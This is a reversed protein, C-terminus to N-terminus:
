SNGQELLYKEIGRSSFRLRGPSLRVTFPHKKSDRYLFDKSTGLREAAEAADLLRDEGEAPAGPGKTAESALRAALRTQLSSIECLISPITEPPLDDVLGPEAALAALHLSKCPVERKM